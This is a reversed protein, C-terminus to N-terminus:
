PSFHAVEPVVLLVRLADAVDEHVGLEPSLAHSAFYTRVPEILLTTPSLRDHSTKLM